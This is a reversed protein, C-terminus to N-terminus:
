AADAGEPCVAKRYDTVLSEPLYGKSNVPRGNLRAWTRIAERDEKTGGDWGTAARQEQRERVMRRTVERRAELAEPSYNFTTHSWDTQPPTEHEFWLSLFVPRIRRLHSAVSNPTLGLMVAATKQDNGCIVLAKLVQKQRDTLAGAIQHVALQETIREDFTAVSGPRWYRVYGKMPAQTRYDYGGNSWDRHKLNEAERHAAARLIDFGPDCDYRYLETIIACVATAHEDETPAGGYVSAHAIRAVAAVTYGHAIPTLDKYIRDPIYDFHKV